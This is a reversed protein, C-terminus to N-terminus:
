NKNNRKRIRIVNKEFQLLLYYYLENKLLFITTFTIIIFTISGVLLQALLSYIDVGMATGIVRVVMFMIIGSLLFPLLMKIYERVPLEDKVAVTQFVCVGVEALVTGIVAGLAGYKSILILNVGLNIIAGFIVSGIYIKDYEMPVLYQNRLISAFSVFPLTISLGILPVICGKFAEGFFIITFVPSIGALGFAMALSLGVAINMSISIYTKIQRIDGKTILNSIRPLMVRGFAFVISLSTNVIKESNEYYGTEILGSINGLMIKDMIKYVSVAVVPVFLAILPKIHGKMDDWSVKVFSVYRKYFPLTILQGLMNGVSLIMIYIWIDTMKNVFVFILILSGIKILMNRSVIVKFEELGFFLWNIDFMVGILYFAQLFIFVDFDNNAVFYFGFLVYVLFVFFSFVVHLKFLSSFVLDLKEQEERCNAIVRSGYTEIGLKSFLVFYNVISYTYAYTGIGEAGIQRSIYPISIIPLAIILLQYVIQYMLNKKLSIPKRNLM